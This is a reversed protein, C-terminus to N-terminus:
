SPNDIISIQTPQRCARALNFIVSRIQGTTYVHIAQNGFSGALASFHNKELLPSVKPLSYLIQMPSRSEIRLGKKTTEYLSADRYIGFHKRLCTTLLVPGTQLVDRDAAPFILTAVPLPRLCFLHPTPADPYHLSGEDRGPFGRRRQKHRCPRGDPPRPLM